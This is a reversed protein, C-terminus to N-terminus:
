KSVTQIMQLWWIITLIVTVDELIESM